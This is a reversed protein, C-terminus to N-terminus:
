GQPELSKWSFEFEIRSVHGGCRLPEYDPSSQVFDALRRFLRHAPERPIDYCDLRLVGVQGESDPYRTAVAGQLFADVSNYLREQLRRLHADDNGKWPGQEVLVLVHAGDPRKTVLDVTVRNAVSVQPPTKV